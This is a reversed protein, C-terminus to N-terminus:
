YNNSVGKHVHWEALMVGACERDTSSL